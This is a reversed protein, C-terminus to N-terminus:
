DPYEHQILELFFGYACGIELLRSGRPLFARVVKLHQSLTKKQAPEDALYDVYEKGHFYDEQYSRQLQESSFCANVTM